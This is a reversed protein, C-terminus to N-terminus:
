ASEERVETESYRSSLAARYESNANALGRVDDLLCADLRSRMYVNGSSKAGNPAVETENDEPLLRGAAVTAGPPVSTGDAEVHNM